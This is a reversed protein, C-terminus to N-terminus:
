TVINDLFPKYSSLKVILKPMRKETMAEIQSEEEEVVEPEEVADGEEVEVM